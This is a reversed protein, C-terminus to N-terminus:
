RVLTGHAARISALSQGNAEGPNCPPREDAQAEGANSSSNYVLILRVSIVGIIGLLDSYTFKPGGVVSQVISLAVCHTKILRTCISLFLLNM